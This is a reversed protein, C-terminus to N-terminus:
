RCASLICQHSLRSIAWFTPQRPDARDWALGQGQVDPLEVTAIWRLESGVVPLEMAYAAGLQVHDFADRDDVVLDVRAVRGAAHNGAVDARVALPQDQGQGTPSKSSRSQELM